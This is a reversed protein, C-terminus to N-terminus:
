DDDEDEFENFSFLIRGEDGAYGSIFTEGDKTSTYVNLAEVECAKSISALSLAISHLARQVYELKGATM